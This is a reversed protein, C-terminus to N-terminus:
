HRVTYSITKTVTNGAVDKATVTFSFTGTKSTNITSGNPVSGTCGGAAIGSGQDACSYSAILTSKSKVTTGDVPSSIKITPPALDVEFPGLPGGTACNGVADCVQHTGTMATTSFTGATLSTALTFRSDASNALGSGTDTATCTVSVNSASWGSPGSQCTATPSSLDVEIPGLPGAAACNGDNDCVERSGTMASASARGSPVATSLAFSSDAPNALGSGSNDSATCDITVNSGQWGTPTSGCTITPPVAASAGLPFSSFVTNTGYVDDSTIVFLFTGAPEFALGHPRVNSDGSSNATTTSFTPTTSGLPFVNIDFIPQGNIDTLSGDDLGTALLGSGSTAVASPYPSAPYIVKDSTLTSGSYELFQYHTFGSSDQTAGAAPIVRTGDPSVALGQINETDGFPSTATTTPASSSVDVRYVQGPSEGDSAVFLTSPDGPSTALDPEYIMQMASNNPFETVQGTAPDVESVQGWGGGLTSAETVWLKGDTMAIWQPSNLWGALPTASPSAADLDIKAVAGNPSPLSEVVYLYHGAIVMGKPSPVSIQNIVNGSYDLEDVVNASPGSVFVHAHNADVVVDGFGIPGLNASAAASAPLVVALIGALTALRATRWGLGM